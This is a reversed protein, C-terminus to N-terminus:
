TQTDSRPLALFVFSVAPDPLDVDPRRHTSTIILHLTIYIHHQIFYLFPQSDQEIVLREDENDVIVEVVELM